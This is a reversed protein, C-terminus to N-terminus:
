EAKIALPSNSDLFYQQPYIFSLHKSPNFRNIIWNHIYIYTTVIFNLFPFSAFFISYLCKNIYHHLFSYAPPPPTLPGHQSIIVVYAGGFFFYQYHFVFFINLFFFNLM